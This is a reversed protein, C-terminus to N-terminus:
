VSKQFLTGDLSVVKHREGTSGSVQSFALSRADEDSECVLCNGVAFILAKKIQPPNFKIVDVLMKTNRPDKIERLREDLHPADIFDLPYFTESQMHQEKMFQICERATKETDVVIADISKGM